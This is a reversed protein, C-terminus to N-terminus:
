FVYALRTYVFRGNFGFPANRPYVFVGASGVQESGNPVGANLNQAPFMDFLNEAGVAFKYRSWKYSLELDAVWAAPYVQDDKGANNISCYEGYRSQRATVNVRGQNFSEM